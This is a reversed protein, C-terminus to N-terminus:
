VLWAKVTQGSRRRSDVDDIEVRILRAEELKADNRGRSFSLKENRIFNLSFVVLLFLKQLLLIYGDSFHSRDYLSFISNMTPPNDTNTSIYGTLYITLIM